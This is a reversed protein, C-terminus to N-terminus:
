LIYKDSIILWLQAKFTSKLKPFTVNIDLIRFPRTYWITYSNFIYYFITGFTCTAFFSIVTRSNMSVM